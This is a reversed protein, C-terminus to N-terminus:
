RRLIEVSGLERLEYNGSSSLRDVAPHSKPCSVRKHRPELSRTEFIQAIQEGDRIIGTETAAETKETRQDYHEELVDTTVDMRDSVLEKSHGENLWATIASRRISHPKVSEPCDSAHEGETAECSGIDRDIPCENSYYCPRTRGRIHRRLTTRAPRGHSTTLLPRRGAKDTVERRRGDLYDDIIEVVWEQLNVERESDEENKLPTGRDKHLSEVSGSGPRHHLEIYAEPSHFDEVDLSRVAGIRLGADWMLAFLVHQYTAYEYKDLYDLIDEAAEPALTETRSARGRDPLMINEALDELLGKSECWKIFTRLSMMANYLTTDAVDADDRRHLKYDSIDFQDLDNIYQIHSQYSCWETFIGLNSKYNYITSDSLDSKREELYREVAEEPTFKRTM